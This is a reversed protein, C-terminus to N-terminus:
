EARLSAIPDVRSARWAPVWAALVGCGALLATVALFSIPDFASVGALLSRLVRGLALAGLLGCAAGAGVLTLGQRLVARRVVGGSAGLALRIALERQRLNVVFSVLGYLGVVAMVLALGAFGAILVLNFRPSVLRQGILEDMTRFRGM